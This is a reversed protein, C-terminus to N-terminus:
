VSRPRSKFKTWVQLLQDNRWGLLAGLLTALYLGHRLQFGARFSLSALRLSRELPQGQEILMMAQRLYVSALLFDREAATRARLEIIRKWDAYMQERQSVSKSRTHLRYAAILVPNFWFTSGQEAARAWFESDMSCHFRLDLGGCRTYVARRFFVTPQPPITFRLLDRRSFPRAYLEGVTNGVEDIYRSNGYVIDIDARQILASVQRSVAHPMYLDDSNLWGFIEGRCRSWGKNVADSQGKDHESLWHFRPDHEYERLIGVTADTSAGDIVWYEINPYDQTLVSEITARIFPGQNYSPTVISVLPQQPSSSSLRDISAGM